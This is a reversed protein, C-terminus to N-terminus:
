HTLPQGGWMAALPWAELRDGFSLVDSGGYLIVGRRFREGTADRLQRLGRVDTARVTSSAKVEIGMVTGGRREIVFDVETGRGTRWWLVDYDGSSWGQHALLECGVM